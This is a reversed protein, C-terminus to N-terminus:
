VMGNNGSSSLATGMINWLCRWVDAGSLGLVKSNEVNMKVKLSGDQNELGRNNMERNLRHVRTVGDRGCIIISSEEGCKSEVVETMGMILDM